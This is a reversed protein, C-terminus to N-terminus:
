CLKATLNRPSSSKTTKAKKSIPFSRVWAFSMCDQASTKRRFDEHSFFVDEDTTNTLYFGGPMSRQEVGQPLTANM